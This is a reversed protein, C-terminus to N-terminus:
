PPAQDRKPMMPVARKRKKSLAAVMKSGGCDVSKALSAALHENDQLISKALRTSERDGANVKPALEQLRHTLLRDTYSSCLPGGNTAYRSKKVRAEKCNSESIKGPLRAFQLKTRYSVGGGGAFSISMVSRAACSLGHAGGGSNPSVDAARLSNHLIDEDSLSRAIRNVPDMRYLADCLMSAATSCVSADSYQVRKFSAVHMTCQLMHVYLIDLLAARCDKGDFNYPLDTQLLCKKADPIVMEVFRTPNLYCCTLPLQQQNNPDGGGGSSQNKRSSDLLLRMFVLSKSFVALLNDRAFKAATNLLARTVVEMGRCPDATYWSVHSVDVPCFHSPDICRWSAGACTPRLRMELRKRLVVIQEGKAEVSAAAAPNNQVVWRMKALPVLVFSEQSTSTCCFYQCPGGRFLNFLPPANESSPPQQRRGEEVTSAGHRDLKVHIPIGQGECLIAAQQQIITENHDPPAAHSYCVYDFSRQCGGTPGRRPFCHVLATDNLQHLIPRVDRQMMFSTFSADSPKYLKGAAALQLYNEHLMCCMMFEDSSLYMEEQFRMAKGVDVQNANAPCSARFSFLFKTQNFIHPTIDVFSSTSQGSERVTTGVFGSSPDNHSSSAAHFEIYNRMQRMDGNCVAAIEAYANRKVALLATKLAPQVRLVNWAYEVLDKTDLRYYQVHKVLSNKVMCRISPKLENIVCVVPMRKTPAISALFKFLYAVGGGGSSSSTDNEDTLAVASETTNAGGWMGDFEEFVLVPPASTHVFQAVVDDAQTKRKRKKANKDVAALMKDFSCGNYMAAFHKKIVSCINRTDSANVISASFGARGIHHLVATSKGVGPPGDLLLIPYKEYEKNRFYSRVTENAAVNGYLKPIEKKACAIAKRRVDDLCSRKPLPTPGSSGGSSGSNSEVICQKKEELRPRKVPPPNQDVNEIVDGDPSYGITEAYVKLLAAIRANVSTDGDLCMMKARGTMDAKLKFNTFLDNVLLTDHDFRHVLETANRFSQSKLWRQLYRQLAVYKQVASLDTM